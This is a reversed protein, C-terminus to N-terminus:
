LGVIDTLLKNHWRYLVLLSLNAELIHGVNLSSSISLNM